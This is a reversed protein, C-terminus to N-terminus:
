FHGLFSVEEVIWALESCKEVNTRSEGCRARCKRFKSMRGVSAIRSCYMRHCIVVFGGSRRMPCAAVAACCRALLWRRAADPLFGGGRLMPCSAVAACCRALLWRRAAYPLFGGGRLMPCSAPCSAVAACRALLWRRAAADPLFGVGRRMQCSAVAAGDGILLMRGGCGRNEREDKIDGRWGYTQTEVNRKM